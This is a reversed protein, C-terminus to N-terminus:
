REKYPSLLCRHLICLLRQLTYFLPDTRDRRSLCQRAHPYPTTNLYFLGDTGITGVLYVPKYGATGNTANNETNFSYRHDILGSHMSWINYTGVIANENYTANAGMYLVQGLRFGHTNRAKGTGTSSSTVISEWRGDSNQM